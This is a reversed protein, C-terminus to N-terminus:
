LEELKKMSNDAWKKVLKSFEIGLEVTLLYFHHDKMMDLHEVLNKQAFGLIKESQTIKKKFDELVHIIEETGIEAGFYVKLMTEQLITFMNNTDTSTTPDAIWEQLAEKGGKTIYYMKRSPRKGEPDKVEKMEVLYENELKKLTPYIKSYNIEPWFMGITQTIEERLDYGHKPEHSLMGLIAYRDVSEKAVRPM